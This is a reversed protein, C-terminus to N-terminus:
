LCSPDTSSICEDYTVPGRFAGCGDSFQWCVGDAGRGISPANQPCGPSRSVCGFFRQPEGCPSASVRTGITPKCLADARCQEESLGRCTEDNAAFEVRQVATTYLVSAIDAFTATLNIDGQNEAVGQRLGLDGLQRLVCDLQHELRAADTSPELRLRWQLERRPREVLQACALSTTPHGQEGCLLGQFRPTLVDECGEPVPEPCTRLCDEFSQFQDDDGACQGDGTLRCRNSVSDHFYSAAGSCVSLEAPVSCQPSAGTVSLQDGADPLSHNGAPAGGACAFAFM